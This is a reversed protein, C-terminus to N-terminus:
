PAISSSGREVKENVLSRLQEAGSTRDIGMIIAVQMTSMWYRLESTLQTNKSIVKIFDAVDKQTRPAKCDEFIQSEGRISYCNKWIYSQVHLPILGRVHERYAPRESLVPNDANTYYSALRSRLEPDLILGLEGGSKLEDYTSRTTIFEALQSAQFYGLLLDWDTLGDQDGTNAYSLAQEGYASVEDWLRLRDKYNVIDADLDNRIRELYSHARVRDVRADNWNSVQLGIFVGVIVIILEAAFVSFNRTRLSEVIRRIM